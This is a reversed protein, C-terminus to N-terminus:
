SEESYMTTVVSIIPVTEESFDDCPQDFWDCRCTDTGHSKAIHAPLLQLSLFPRKVLIMVLNMMGIVDAPTTIRCCLATQSSLMAKSRYQSGSIITNVYPTNNWITNMLIEVVKLLILTVNKWKWQLIFAIPWTYIKQLNICPVNCKIELHCHLLDRTFRTFLSTSRLSKCTAQQMKNGM